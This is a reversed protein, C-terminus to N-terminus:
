KQDQLWEGISDLHRELFKINNRVAELAQIRANAGAGADPYKKFFAEM